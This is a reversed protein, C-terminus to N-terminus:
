KGQGVSGKLRISLSILNLITISNCVILKDAIVAKEKHVISFLM